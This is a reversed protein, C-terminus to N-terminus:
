LRANSKPRDFAAGRWASPKANVQLRENGEAETLALDLHCLRSLAELLFGPIKCTEESLVSRFWDYLRRYMPTSDREQFAISQFFGTSVQKM